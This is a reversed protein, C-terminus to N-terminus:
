VIALTLRFMVHPKSRPSSMRGAFADQHPTGAHNAIEIRGSQRMPNHYLYVYSGKDFRHHPPNHTPPSLYYHVDTFSHPTLLSISNLFLSLVWLTL